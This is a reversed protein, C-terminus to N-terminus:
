IRGSRANGTLLVKVREVVPFDLSARFIPVWEDKTLDQKLGVSAKANTIEEDFMKLFLKVDHTVKYRLKRVKNFNQTIKMVQEKRVQAPDVDPKLAEILEEIKTSSQLIKNDQENKSKVLLELLDKLTVPDVPAAAAGAGNDNEENGNGTM